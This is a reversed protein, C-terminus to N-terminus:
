AFFIKHGGTEFVDGRRLVGVWDSKSYLFRLLFVKNNSIQYFLLFNDVPIFRIGQSALFFDSVCPFMKSMSELKHTIDSISQLLGDAAAQNHLNFSIYDTCKQIDAEIKETFFVAYKM